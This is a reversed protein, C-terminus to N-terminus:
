RINRERNLLTDYFSHFDSQLIDHNQEGFM